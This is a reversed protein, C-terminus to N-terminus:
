GGVVPQALQLMEFPSFPLYELPNRQTDLSSSGVDRFEAWTELSVKFEVVELIAGKLVWELSSLTSPTQPPLSACLSTVISVGSTELQGEGTSRIM